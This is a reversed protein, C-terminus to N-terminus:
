RLEGIDGALSDLSWQNAALLSAVQQREGGRDELSSELSSVYRRLLDRYGSGLTVLYKSGDNDDHQQEDEDALGSTSSGRKPVVPTLITIQSEYPRFVITPKLTSAEIIIFCGLSTGVFLQDSAQVMSTIFSSRAEQYYQEINISELSESCPVLKVCDLKRVVQKEQISWLHVTCGASTWLSDRSTTIFNVEGTNNPDIIREGDSDVAKGALPWISQRIVEGDYIDLSSVGGAQGCFLHFGGKDTAQDQGDNANNTVKKDTLSVCNFQMAGGELRECDMTDLPCLWLQGDSMLFLVCNAVEIWLMSRVRLNSKSRSTDVLNLRFSTMKDLQNRATENPSSSLLSSELLDPATIRSGDPLSHIVLNSDCFWIQRAVLCMCDIQCESNDDLRVEITQSQVWRGQDASSVFLKSPGDSHWLDLRNDYQIAASFTQTEGALAVVDLIQMFEPTSAISVIQSATPRDRPEQSWCVSMLDLVQSPYILDSQALTPRGGETLQSRAGETQKYPPRLTLLEYMFMGFSFCDVKETYEEDGNHRLIEPALFSITGAFGKWTGTSLAQRSIGYDALKLEVSAKRVQTAYPSPFSWVLVNETKLDRYIVRQQHLFELARAVQLITKQVSYQDIRMGARKYNNFVDTLSGLPALELVIALPKICLGIFCVVNPHSISQLINVEHRATCYSKCASQFPERAWSSIASRYAALDNQEAEPGPDVPQLLKLAIEQNGQGLQNLPYASRLSGKFVFGLTGRGILKCRDIHEKDLKLEDAIDEFMIDPAVAGISIAGHKPCRLNRGKLNSAKSALPNDLAALRSPPGLATPALNYVNIICHEVYYCYVEHIANSRFAPVHNDYIPGDHASQISFLAKGTSRLARASHEQHRRGGRHGHIQPLAASCLRCPIIRTVLYNGGLTHAFRAGLSPYWDELLNDIHDVTKSLLRSINLHDFEIYKISRDEKSTVKLRPNPVTLMVVNSYENLDLDCWKSSVVDVVCTNNERQSNAGVTGMQVCEIKFDLKSLYSDRMSSNFEQISLLCPIIQDKNQRTNITSEKQLTLKIGTKWCTWGARCGVMQDLENPEEVQDTLNWYLESCTDDYAADSLIASQLRALFGAPLYRLLVFRSISREPEFEFEYLHKSPSLGNMQEGTAGRPDISSSRKAQRSGPEMHRVISRGRTRPGQIKVQFDRTDENISDPNSPLLSPILLYQSNWTLAVEFKNLLNVVYSQVGGSLNVDISKFLHGLDDMKMLGNKVHPNIERITVVHSLVDCLWQPDLFYLDRLNADEYHLLIGNEHLFRSAQQLESNYNIERSNPPELDRFQKNYKSKLQESTIKKYDDYTLVPEKRKQQRDHVISSVIEELYLYTAPIKQELLRETSGPCRLSFVVDYIRNCLNKINLKTKTSVVISDLVRPLGCKDQDSVNIFRRQVEAQLSQVIAGREGGEIMDEHTGVIIVPSGSARSQINVLWQQIGLIGSIGDTMRWVVLYMSRKSLFYRHTAYFEEQGGFDWTSFTVPGFNPQGRATRKCFIWDHIDVGVTSLTVGKQNRLNNRSSHGMRKTWHEPPRRRSGTSGEHRMQELLSTKGIGQLGVLMLKMRAYPKAEELISRLYGIVDMTKYTKSEVISKLPESLNCGVVGLNWLKSALGLEAPLSTIMQNGNLNLVSLDKLDSLNSSVRQIKNFSLDLGTLNPFLLQGKTLSPSNRSQNSAISTNSLDPPQYIQIEKLQNYSLNLQKLCELRVHCKHPCVLLSRPLRCFGRINEVYCHRTDSEPLYFEFWISIQNHSLDINKLRSPFLGIDRLSEIRNHSLNLRTLDTTICALVPPISTFSNHSLNLYNLHSVTTTEDPENASKSQSSPNSVVDIRSQWHSLHDLSTPKIATQSKIIDQDKINKVYSPERIPEFEVSNGVFSGEFRELGSLNSTLSNAREESPSDSISSLRGELPQQRSHSPAKPLDDLLNGSAILERLAPATWVAWPLQRIQNSSVDLETLKPLQFLCDPLSILLNDHLDLTELCPLDWEQKENLDILNSSELHVSLNSSKSRKMATRHSEILKTTPIVDLGDCTGRQGVDVLSELRNKSLNLERLSPLRFIVPHVSTLNNSSLDLRTIAMLSNTPHRLRKNHMLSADILWQPDIQKICKLNRWGITVPTAPFMSSFTTTTEGSKNSSHFKHNQKFRSAFEVNCKKNIKYELDVNSKLSLFKSILQHNKNLSAVHLALNDQNDSAGYRILINCMSEDNLRCAEKLCTSKSSRLWNLGVDGASSAAISDRSLIPLNPNSGNVLLTTAINYYQQCVALHLATKSNYDCYTDMEFPCILYKNDDTSRPLSNEDNTQKNDSDNDRLRRFIKDLQNNPLFKRTNMDQQNSSKSKDPVIRVRGIESSNMKNDQRKSLTQHNENGLARLHRAEINFNLLTDLLKENNASVALYIVTQGAADQANLDFAFSYEYSGSRNVYRRKLAKPYPYNLILRATESHGQLCCGHLVTWKEITVEQVLSPFNDLLLRVTDTHGGYAAVYLPSYNTNENCKATAGFEILVKCVQTHGLSASKFLLTVDNWSSSSWNILQRLSNRAFLKGDRQPHWGKPLNEIIRREYMGLLEKVKQHQNSSCAPNMVSYFEDRFKEIEEKRNEIINALNQNDCYQAIEHCTLNRDDRLELNLHELELFAKVIDVQGLEVALHLPSRARTADFVNPDAGHRLLCEICNLDNEMVAVHLLMHGDEGPVDLLRAGDEGNLLDNLLSDNHHQIASFLLTHLEKHDM